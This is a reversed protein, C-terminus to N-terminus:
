FLWMGLLAAMSALTVLALLTLWGSTPVASNRVQPAIFLCSLELAYAFRFAAVITDSPPVGSARLYTSYGANLVTTLILGFVGLSFWAAGVDHRERFFISLSRRWPFLCAVSIVLIEVNGVQVLANEGIAFSGFIFLLIPVLIVLARGGPFRDFLKLIM